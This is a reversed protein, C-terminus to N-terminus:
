NHPPTDSRIRVRKVEFIRGKDPRKPGHRRRFQHFLKIRRGSIDPANSAPVPFDPSQQRAHDAPKCQAQPEPRVEENLRGDAPDRDLPFLPKPFSRIAVKQELVGDDLISQGHRGYVFDALTKNTMYGVVRVSELKRDDLAVDHIGEGQRSPIDDDEAREDMFGLVRLFYCSHQTMFQTMYELAMRKLPNHLLQAHDRHQADDHPTFLTQRAEHLV